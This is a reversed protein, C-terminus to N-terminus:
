FRLYSEGAWISSYEVSRGPYPAHIMMGGGIYIGVHGPWYVVDGPVAEARSIHRGAAAMSETVRPLSKGVAERYVYQVLGSCDFGAPTTGGWVYPVGLYKQATAVISGSPAPPVPGGAGSSGGGSGPQPRNAAAQRAAEEAARRAAEIAAQARAAAEAQFQKNKEDLQAQLGALKSVEADATAKAEEAAKENAEAQKHLGDLKEGIADLRGKANNGTALDNSSSTMLRSEVRSVTNSAEINGVFDQSDQAGTFVSLAAAGEDNRLESRAQSALTTRAFDFDRGANDLVTQLASYDKETAEIRDNLAQAKASTEALKADAAAKVAQAHPIDIFQVRDLEIANAIFDEPQGKM